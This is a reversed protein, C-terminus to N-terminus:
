AIHPPYYNLNLSNIHERHLEYVIDFNIARLQDLLNEIGCIGCDCRNEEKFYLLYMEKVASKYSEVISQAEKM